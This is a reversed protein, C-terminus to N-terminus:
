KVRKMIADIQNFILNKTRDKTVTKPEFHDSVIKFIYANKMGKAAEYFGYSEMDVIKYRSESMEEDLCNIIKTNKNNLTYSNEKYEISSIEILEGIEYSSDAGCIGINLILDNETIEFSSLLATTANKANLIGIGSVIIQFEKNAFLKYEKLKTKQLRYRDVFAQAESKLAM